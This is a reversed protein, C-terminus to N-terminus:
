VGASCGHVCKAPIFSARATTNAAEDMNRRTTAFMVTVHGAISHLINLRMLLDEMTMELFRQSMRRYYFPFFSVYSAEIM